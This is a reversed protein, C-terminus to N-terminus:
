PSPLSHVFHLSGRRLNSATWQDLCQEVHFMKLWGQPVPSQWLLTAGHALLPTLSKAFREPKDIARCTIVTPISNPTTHPFEGHIPHLSPLNLVAIAKRLFGLKKDSREILISPVGPNIIAVPIAPFGGGSGIDWYEGNAALKRIYPGLSLSDVVHRDLIHEEDGRSVLGVIPNWKKVLAAYAHLKDYQETNISFGHTQLLDIADQLRMSDPM